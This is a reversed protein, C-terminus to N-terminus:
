LSVDVKISSETLIIDRSNDAKSHNSSEVKIRVHLPRMFIVDRLDRNTKLLQIWSDREIEGSRGLNLIEVIRAAYKEQNDEPQDPDSRLKLYLVANIIVQMAVFASINAGYVVIQSLRCGQSPSFFFVHLSVHRVIELVRTSLLVSTFKRM